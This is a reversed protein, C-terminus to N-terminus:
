VLLVKLRKRVGSASDAELKLLMHHVKQLKMELRGVKESAKRACDSIKRQRKSVTDIDSDGELNFDLEVVKKSLKNNTKILQLITGDAERLQATISRMQRSTFKGDHGESSGINSKLENLRSQLEMLRQSDFSLRELINKKGEQLLEARVVERPIMQKDVGLEKEPMEDNSLRKGRMDREGYLVPDIEPYELEMDRQMLLRVNFKREGSEREGGAFGLSEVNYSGPNGSITSGSANAHMNKQSSSHVRERDREGRSNLSSSSNSSQILDLQIDKLMQEDNVGSLDDNWIEMMTLLEVQKKGDILSAAFDAREQELVVATNAVVEKLSKITAHLQQLVPNHTVATATHGHDKNTPKHSSKTCKSPSM